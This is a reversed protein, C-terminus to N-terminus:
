WDFRKWGLTDILGHKVAYEACTVPKDSGILDLPEYTSEGTECEVLVNFASGKYDKDLSRLPGQHATIQRFKYLLETDHEVKSYDKEIHDLIENYTLINDVNSTPVECIFRL